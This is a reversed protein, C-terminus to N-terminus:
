WAFFADGCGLRDVTLVVLGGSFNVDSEVGAVGNESHTRYPRVYRIRCHNLPPFELVIRAVRRQV